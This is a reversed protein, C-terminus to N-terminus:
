RSARDRLLHQWSEKLKSVFTKAKPAAPSIKPMERTVGSWERALHHDRVYRRNLQTIAPSLEDLQRKFGSFRGADERVIEEVRARWTALSSARAREGSFQEIVRTHSAHSASFFNMQTETIKTLSKCKESIELLKELQSSIVEILM